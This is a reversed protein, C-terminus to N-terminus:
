ISFASIHKTCSKYMYEINTTLLDHECVEENFSTQYPKRNFLRVSNKKNDRLTKPLIQQSGGFHM